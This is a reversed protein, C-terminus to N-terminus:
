DGTTKRKSKRFAEYLGDLQGTIFEAFELGYDAKICISAKKQTGNLSVSGSKDVPAWAQARPADKAKHPKGNLADVVMQFRQDSSLTRSNDASLLAILEKGKAKPLLDVFEMWRRRGVEPAAGIAEILEIPIQRVVSIMKSL